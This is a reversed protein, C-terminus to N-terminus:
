YCNITYVYEHHLKVSVKTVETKKKLVVIYKIVYKTITVRIHIKKKKENNLYHM